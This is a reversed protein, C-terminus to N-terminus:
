GRPALLSVAGKIDAAQPMIETPQHTRDNLHDVAVLILVSVAPVALLAALRALCPIIAIRRSHHM